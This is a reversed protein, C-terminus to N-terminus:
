GELWGNWDLDDATRFYFSRFPLGSVLLADTFSLLPARDLISSYDFNIECYFLTEEEM